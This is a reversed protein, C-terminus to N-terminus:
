SMELEKISNLFKHYSEFFSEDNYLVFIEETLNNVQKDVDSSATNIESIGDLSSKLLESSNLIDKFSNMYDTINKLKIRVSSFEKQSLKKSDTIFLLTSYKKQYNEFILQHQKLHQNHQDLLIKLLDNYQGNINNYMAINLKAQTRCLASKALILEMLLQKLEVANFYLDKKNEEFIEYLKQQKQANLKMEELVLSHEHQKILLDQQESLQKKLTEQQKDLQKELNEQTAKISKEMNLSQWYQSIIVGLLAILSASLGAIVVPYDKLFNFKIGIHIVFILILLILVCLSAMVGLVEIFSYIKSRM